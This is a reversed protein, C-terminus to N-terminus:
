GPGLEFVPSPGHQSAVHVRPSGGGAELTRRAAAEALEPTNNHESLHALVVVRLGPHNIKSLFDAAQDNSLHGKRSLIRKKLFAPYPGHRLMELDHNFELVMGDLWQFAAVIRKPAFGLDTAVGLSAGQGRLVYLLPDVTDHSSRVAQVALSGVRVTEGESIDEQGCEGARWGAEEWLVPSAYIMANLRRALPGVGSFHDTHEHTVFIARLRETKLGAQAARGRFLELGLGCDVLCASGGEEAWVANGRSGSSLVCFKM